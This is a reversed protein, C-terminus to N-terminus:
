EEKLIGYIAEIGDGREVVRYRFNDNDPQYQRWHHKEKGEDYGDVYYGNDKLWQRSEKKTWKEKDFLMSQDHNENPPQRNVDPM